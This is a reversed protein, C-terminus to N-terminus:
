DFLLRLDFYFAYIYKYKYIFTHFYFSLSCSCGVFLYIANFYIANRKKDYNMQTSIIYYIQLGVVVIFFVFGFKFSIFDYKLIIIIIIGKAEIM